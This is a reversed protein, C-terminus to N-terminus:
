RLLAAALGAMAPSWTASCMVTQPHVAPHLFGRTPGMDAAREKLEELSHAEACQAIWERKDACIKALVDSM